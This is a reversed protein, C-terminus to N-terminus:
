LLQADCSERSGSQTVFTPTSDLYGVCATFDHALDRDFLRNDLNVFSSADLEIDNV